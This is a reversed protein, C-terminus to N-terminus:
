QGAAAGTQAPCKDANASALDVRDRVLRGLMDCRQEPKSLVPDAFLDAVIKEGTERDASMRAGGGAPSDFVMLAPAGAQNSWPSWEALKGDVGRGPTGTAAFNVWYSMMADSLAIRGPANAKTFAYQDFRGLLRFDGFVFPIELSHGAGLLQGLDTSLVKSEEDWDFRYAWVPAHGGAVMRGAPGDVSNARWMRSPYSSVANYYAPDKAKPLVGMVYEVLQPNLANFLKLEDRNTGTIVPVANYGAPSDLVAVPGGVPVVTGDAIIRLPDMPRTGTGYADFIAKLQAARLATGSVETGAGLIKAAITKAAAPNTGSSGEAVDLAEARFSGSQVIARHFLGKARPSTLLVATNQGGASEGFVTVRGPDGGFASIDQRIWELARIQDLTGFNPSTDDPETGGDRLKDLAMWGLAGLRYQIVVVVVKFRAALASGDYQEARGWTNSGGHIWMMVPLKAQGAEAASMPPAYVNLYLCDEQGVIQGWQKRDVGDLASLQQPCWPAVATSVRQGAWGQPLRPARWRLQGVPPAAFPISRWVHAGTDADIMGVLQGQSIVRATQPAVTPTEARPAVACASVALALILSLCNKM